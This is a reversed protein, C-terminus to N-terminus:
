PDFCVIRVRVGSKNVFSNVTVFTLLILVASEIKVVFRIIQAATYINAQRAAIVIKGIQQFVCQDVTDEFRLCLQATHDRM